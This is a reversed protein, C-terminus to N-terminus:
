VWLPRVKPTLTRTKKRAERRPRVLFSRIRQHQARQTSSTSWLMLGTPIPKLWIQFVPKSPGSTTPSPSGLTSTSLEKNEPLALFHRKKKTFTTVCKTTRIFYELQKRTGPQSNRTHNNLSWNTESQRHYKHRHYTVSATEYGAFSIRDAVKPDENKEPLPLVRPVKEIQSPHSQYGQETM